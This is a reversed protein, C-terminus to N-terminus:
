PCPWDQHHITAGDSTLQTVKSLDGLNELCWNIWSLLLVQGWVAIRLMLSSIHLFHAAHGQPNITAEYINPLLFLHQQHHCQQHHRDTGQHTSHVLPYHVAVHRIWVRWTFLLNSWTFCAQHYLPWSSCNCARGQSLHKVELAPRPGRGKLGEGEDTKRRPGM